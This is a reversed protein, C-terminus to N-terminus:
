KLAFGVPVAPRARWLLLARTAGKLAPPADQLDQRRQLRIRIATWADLLAIKLRHRVQYANWVVRLAMAINLLGAQARLAHQKRWKPILCASKASTATRRAALRLLNAQYVLFAHRPVSRMKNSDRQANGACLHKWIGLAFNVKTVGKASPKAVQM